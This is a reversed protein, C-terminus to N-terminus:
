FLLWFLPSMRNCTPRLDRGPRCNRSVTYEHVLQYLPGRPHLSLTQLCLQICWRFTGVSGVSCIVKATCIYFHSMFLSQTSPAAFYIHTHYSPCGLFLPTRPGHFRRGQHRHQSGGFYTPIHSSQLLIKWSNYTCLTPHIQLYYSSLCACHLCYHSVWM